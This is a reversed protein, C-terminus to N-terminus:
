EMLPAGYAGYILGWARGPGPCRSNERESRGQNQTSKVGGKEGSGREHKNIATTHPAGTLHPKWLSLDFGQKRLGVSVTEPSKYPIATHEEPCPM